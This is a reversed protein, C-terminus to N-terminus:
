RVLIILQQGEQKVVIPVQEGRANICCVERDEPYEWLLDILEKKTM